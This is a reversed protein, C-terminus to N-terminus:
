KSREALKALAPIEEPDTEKEVIALLYFETYGCLGCSVAMYRSPDLMSSVVGRGVSVEQTIAGHGHCKPCIFDREFREKTLKL